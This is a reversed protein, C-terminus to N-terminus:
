DDILRVAEGNRATADAVLRYDRGPALEADV